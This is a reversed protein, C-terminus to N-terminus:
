LAERAEVSSRPQWWAPSSRPSGRGRGRGWTRWGTRRPSPSPCRRWGRWARRTWGPSRSPARSGTAPTGATWGGSGAPAPAPASTGSGASCSAPARAATRRGRAPTRGCTWGCRRAWWACWFVCLYMNVVPTLFHERRVKSGNNHMWCWNQAVLAVILIFITINLGSAMGTDFIYAITWDTLGGWWACWFGCLHTIGAHVIPSCLDKYCKGVKKLRLWPAFLCIFQLMILLIFWLKFTM